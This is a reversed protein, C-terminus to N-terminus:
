LYSQSPNSEFELVIIFKLLETYLCLPQTMKFALPKCLNSMLQRDFLYRKLLYSYKRFKARQPSVSSNKLLIKKQCNNNVFLELTTSKTLHEHFSLLGRLKEIMLNDSVKKQQQKFLYILYLCM